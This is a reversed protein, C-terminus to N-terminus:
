ARRPGAASAVYVALEEFFVRERGVRELRFGVESCEDEFMGLEAEDNLIFVVSGSRKVVRLADRLFRIPVELGRGGDVARDGTEGLLYPPNFAVVDFTAPRFCSALDALVFGAGAGKWDSMQPRTLDTGVVVKFKGGLYVLTGGNGAGIELCLGGGYRALGKRLLASDESSTYVGGKM